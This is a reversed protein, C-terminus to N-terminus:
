KCNLVIEKCIAGFVPACDSSGSKGDESLVVVIYHPNEAPFFGAFWTRCIEKGDKWIGSQATGTKGALSFLPNKAKQANGNEVVSALLERMKLVTSDSFIKRPTPLSKTKVLGNENATGRIVTPPVYNGSALTHYASLIQLPSALLKGQGFSFNAREGKIKLEENTPLLGKAGSLNEAIETEYEFGLSRCVSLLYDTDVKEILNVFYCNCSNELAEKMTEKGHEKGDFCRFVTDGVKIEGKCTFETNPSIGNELACACVIPKFVSGVTYSNLAKNVLPSNEEGLSKAVNNRDFTPVSALAFIEGTDIHMVLACGSKIESESLVKETALQFSRNITTVIGAKSSFNDDTIEKDLGALVRGKADVGFSVSLRGSNEKLFRNYAKELGSLGNQKSSDLYGTLHCASTDSYRIPVSFTKVLETDIENEVECIFPKGDKIKDKLNECSSALEPIGLVAPTPTVAAILRQKRDTLMELNRDYIKGRSTGIEITKTQQRQSAESYLKTNIQVIRFILVAFCVTVAIYLGVARNKM